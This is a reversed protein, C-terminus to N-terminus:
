KREFSVVQYLGFFGRTKSKDQELFKDNQFLKEIQAEDLGEKKLAKIVPHSEKESYLIMDAAHQSSGIFGTIRSISEASIKMGLTKEVDDPQSKLWKNLHSVYIYPEKNLRIYDKWDEFQMKVPVKNQELYARVFPFNVSNVSTFGLSTYPQPMFPWIKKTWVDFAELLAGKEPKLHNSIINRLTMSANLGSRFETHDIGSTIKQLIMKVALGNNYKGYDIPAYKVDYGVRPQIHRVDLGLSLIDEVRKECLLAAVTNAPINRGQPAKFGEDGILYGNVKAAYFRGNEKRIMDEPIDTLTYRIRAYDAKVKGSMDDLLDERLAFLKGESIFSRLGPRNILADLVERYGDSAYATLGRFLGPYSTRIRGLLVEMSEGHGAGLEKIIIEKKGCFRENLRAVTENLIAPKRSMHGSFCSFVDFKSASRYFLTNEVLERANNRDSFPLFNSFYVATKGGALRRRPLNGSHFRVPDM